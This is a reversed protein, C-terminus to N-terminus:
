WRVSALRSELYDDLEDARDPSAAMAVAARHYDAVDTAHCCLWSTVISHSASGPGCGYVPDHSYRDTGAIWGDRVVILRSTRTLFRCGAHEHRRPVAEVLWEHNSWTIAADTDPHDIWENVLAAFDPEVILSM